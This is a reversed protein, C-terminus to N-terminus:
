MYFRAFRIPFYTVFSQFICVYELANSKYTGLFDKPKFYPMLALFHSMRNFLNFSIVKQWSYWPETFRIQIGIFIGIVVLSSFIIKLLM